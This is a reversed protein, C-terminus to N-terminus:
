IKKRSVEHGGIAGVVTGRQTREGEDVGAAAAHRAAGIMRIETGEVGAFFRLGESALLGGLLDGIV